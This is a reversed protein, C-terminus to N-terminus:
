GGAPRGALRAACQTRGTDPSERRAAQMADYLHQTRAALWRGILCAVISAATRLLLWRMDQSTVWDRGIRREMHLSIALGNLTDIAIAVYLGVRAAGRLRHAFWAAVPILLLILSCGVLV